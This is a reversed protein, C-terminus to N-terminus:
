FAIRFLITNCRSLTSGRNISRQGSTATEFTAVSSRISRATIYTSSSSRKSGVTHVIVSTLRKLNRDYSINDNSITSGEPVIEAAASSAIHGHVPRLGLQPELEFTCDAASNAAPEFKLTSRILGVMSISKRKIEPELPTQPVCLEISERTASTQASRSGEAVGAKEKAQFEGKVHNMAM